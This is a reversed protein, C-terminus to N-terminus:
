TLLWLDQNTPHILYPFDAAAVISVMIAVRFSRRARTSITPHPSTPKRQTGSSVCRAAAGRTMAKVLWGSRAASSRAAPVVGSM